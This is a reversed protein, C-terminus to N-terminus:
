LIRGAARLRAAATSDYDDINIAVLHHDRWEGDIHLNRRLYGEDRFGCHHLVAGSAPNGPMYTATVRHLGVRDFAHDVGLACAATAVGAGQFASFVWYGIWCERIAGLQINGLTVQGAFDGGVTIALPVISGERASSRLFSLHNHWAARTHAAEWGAPATPEVPRLYGEDLVRMQRWDEGDRSLLPRLQVLEGGPIRVAPTAEPWGPHYTDTPGTAPTDFRRGFFNWM